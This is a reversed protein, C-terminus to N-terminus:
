KRSRLEAIEERCQDLPSLPMAAGKGGGSIDLNAPTAKKGVLKLAEELSDLQDQTKGKLTSVDVGYSSAIAVRRQDLLKITLGSVSEEAIKLKAQLDVVQAKTATGEKFQEELQEKAAQMALLSNHTEEKIRNSEAVQTLLEAEKKEAGAKIALLDKEPVMKQDNPTQPITTDAM